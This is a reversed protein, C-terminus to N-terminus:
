LIAAEVDKDNGSVVTVATYRRRHADRRNARVVLVVLRQKVHQTLRFRCREGNLGHDIVEQKNEGAIRQGVRDIVKVLV